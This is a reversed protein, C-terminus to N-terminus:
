PLTLPARGRRCISFLDASVAQTESLELWLRLSRPLNCWRGPSYSGVGAWGLAWMSLTGEQSELPTEGFLAQKGLPLERFPLERVGRVVM